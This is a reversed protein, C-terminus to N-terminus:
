DRPSPSTYLLCVYVYIYTYVYKYKGVSRQTPNKNQFHRRGRAARADRALARTADRVDCEMAVAAGKKHGPCGRSSCGVQRLRERLPHNRFGRRSSDEFLVKSRSTALRTSLVDEAAAESM